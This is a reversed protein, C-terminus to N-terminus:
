NNNQYNSIIKNSKILENNLKNNDVTLRNIKEKLQENERKYYTLAEKLKNNENSLNSNQINFYNMKQNIEM